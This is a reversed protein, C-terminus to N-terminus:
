DFKMEYIYASIEELTAQDYSLLPMLGYKDIADQMISTTSNPSYVWTSMASVFQKKEPFARLYNERVDQISPASLTDTRHHCTVCNGDFLLSGYNSAWMQTYLVTFFIIYRM